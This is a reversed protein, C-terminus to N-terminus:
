RADLRYIQGTSSNGSPRASITLPRYVANAIIQGLRTFGAAVFDQRKVVDIDAPFRTLTAASISCDLNSEDIRQCDRMAFEANPPEPFFGDVVIVEGSAVEFSAFATNLEIAVNLGDVSVERQSPSYGASKVLRKEGFVWRLEACGGTVYVAACEQYGPVDAYQDDTWLETKQYEINNVTNLTIKGIGARSAQGIDDTPLKTRRMPYSVGQLRYSGPEVVYVQYTTLGSTFQYQYGSPGARKFWRDSGVILPANAVASNNWRVSAELDTVISGSFNSVYTASNDMRSEYDPYKEDVNLTTTIVISKGSQLALPFIKDIEAPGDENEIVAQPKNKARALAPNVSTVLCLAIVASISRVLFM